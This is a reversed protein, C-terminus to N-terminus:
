CWGLFPPPLPLRGGEAEMLFVGNKFGKKRTMSKTNPFLPDHHCLLFCSVFFCSVFFFMRLFGHSWCGCGVQPSFHERLDRVIKWAENRIKWIWISRLLGSCYDSTHTDGINNMVVAEQTTSWGVLNTRNSTEAQTKWQMHNYPQNSM